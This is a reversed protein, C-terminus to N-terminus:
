HKLVTTVITKHAPQEGMSDKICVMGDFLNENIKQGPRKKITPYEYFAKKNTASSLITYMYSMVGKEKAVSVIKEILIGTQEEPSKGSIIAVNSKLENTKKIPKEPDEPKKYPLKFFSLFSNDNSDVKNPRELKPTFYVHSNYKNSNKQVKVLSLQSM